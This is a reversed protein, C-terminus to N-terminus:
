PLEICLMAGNYCLLIEDAFHFISIPKTARAQKHVFDLDNDQPDLIPEIDLTDLRVAQFGQSGTVVCLQTKLHHVSTVVSPLYFHQVNFTM